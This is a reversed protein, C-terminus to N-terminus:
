TLAVAVVREIPRIDTRASWSGGRDTSYAVGLYQGPSTGAGNLLVIYSVDTVSDRLVRVLFDSVIVSDNVGASSASRGDIAQGFTMDTWSSPASCFYTSNALIPANTWHPVDREDVFAYP